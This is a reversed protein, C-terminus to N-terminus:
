DTGKEEGAGAPEETEMANGGDEKEDSSSSSDSSEQTGEFAALEAMISKTEPEKKLWVSGGLGNLAAVAKGGVKLKAGQIVVPKTPKGKDGGYLKLLRERLRVLPAELKRQEPAKNYRPQIPKGAENKHGKKKIADLFSKAQANTDFTVVAHKKGDLPWISLSFKAGLTTCSGQVWGKITKDADDPSLNGIYIEKATMSRMFKLDREADDIKAQELAKIRPMIDTKRAFRNRAWKQVEEKAEEVKEEVHEKTALNGIDDKTSMNEEMTKLQAMIAALGPDALEEAPVEAHPQAQEPPGPPKQAPAKAYPGPERTPSASVSKEGNPPYKPM